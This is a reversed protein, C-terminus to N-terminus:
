LEEWEVEKGCCYCKFNTKDIQKKQVYNKGYIYEYEVKPNILYNHLGKKCLRKSKYFPLISNINKHINYTEVLRM